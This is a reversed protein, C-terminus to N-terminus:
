EFYLSGFFEPLHFNPQPSQIPMWSLFHPDPLEDGCKYFNAACRMGQLTSITHFCFVRIPIMLALEWNIMGARTDNHLLAQYKINKIVAEPLPTRDTKGSGFGSLNTGICNFELNYYGAGNELAIFFEVCSDTYVPSNPSHCAGKVVKEKVYYKIMLCDNSHGIAFSVVPKYPYDIWPAQEIRQNPLADLCTAVEAITSKQDISNLFPISLHKGGAM